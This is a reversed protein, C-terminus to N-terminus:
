RWYYIFFAFSWSYLRFALAWFFMYPLTGIFLQLALRFGPAQWNRQWCSQWSDQWLSLLEQRFYFLLAFWSGLQIVAAFAAGADPAGFLAQFLRLHATSSIPLFETVGQVIGLLVAQLWDNM